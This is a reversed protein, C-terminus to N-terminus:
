NWWAKEPNGNAEPDDAYPPVGVHEPASAMDSNFSACGAGSLALIAILGLRLPLGCSVARIASDLLESNM